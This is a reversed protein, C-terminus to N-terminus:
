IFFSLALHLPFALAMGIDACSSASMDSDYKSVDCLTPKLGFEQPIIKGVTKM